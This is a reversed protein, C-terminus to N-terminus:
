KNGFKKQNNHIRTIHGKLEKYKEDLQTKINFFDNINASFMEKDRQINKQSKSKWINILAKPDYKNKPHAAVLFRPVLNMEIRHVMKILSADYEVLAYQLGIKSLEEYVGEYSVKLPINEEFTSEIMFKDFIAARAQIPIFNFNVAFIIIKNSIKKFNTVFVPSFMMWNSSDLYNFHYFMGPIIDKVSIATVLDDSKSYKDLFFLSNNKFNDALGDGHVLMRLGIRDVLSSM